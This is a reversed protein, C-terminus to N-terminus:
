QCCRLLDPEGTPPGGCCASKRFFTSAYDLHNNSINMAKFATTEHCFIQYILHCGISLNGPIM